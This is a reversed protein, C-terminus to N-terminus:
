GHRGLRRYTLTALAIGLTAAGVALMGLGFNPDNPKDDSLANALVLVPVMPIMGAVGAVVTRVARHVTM